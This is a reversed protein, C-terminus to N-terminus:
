FMGSPVPIYMALASYTPKYMWKYDYSRPDSPNGGNTRCTINRATYEVGPITTGEVSVTPPVTFYLRFVKTSYM